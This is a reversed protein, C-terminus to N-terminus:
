PARSLFIDWLAGSKEAGNNDKYIFKGPGLLKARNALNRTENKYDVSLSLINLDKPRLVESKQCLGDQNKDRWFLLQSFVPDRSDIVGDNNVDYFALNQFGNDYGNIDGFLEGGHDIKGNNNRDNGVFFLSKGFTPWSIKEKNKNHAQRQYLPFHSTNLVEPLTEAFSIALPSFYGGCFGTEGPFSVYLVTSKGNESHYWRMNATLPGTAGMYTGTKANPPLEQNFRVARFLKAKNNIQHLKGYDTGSALVDLGISRTNIMAVRILGDELRATFKTTITGDPSVIGSQESLNQSLRINKVVALAPFSVQYTKYTNDSALYEIAAHITSDPSVPNAIGRLNTGFCSVYIDLNSTGSDRTLALKSDIVVDSMNPGSIPLISVTTRPAKVVQAVVTWSLLSLSIFALRQFKRM